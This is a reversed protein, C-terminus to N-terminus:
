HLGYAFYFTYYVIGNPASPDPTNDAAVSGYFGGEQKNPVNATWWLVIKDLEGSLEEKLRAFQQEARSETLVRKM